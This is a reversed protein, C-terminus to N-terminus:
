HDAGPWNKEGAPIRVPLINSKPPLVCSWYPAFACNPNHARNFDLIVKGDKPPDAYLFRGAGYTERPATRDRFSFFLKGPEAEIATLEFTQGDLTFPAVGPISFGSRIGDARNVILTRPPSSPIWKATIRFGSTEPFWARPAIAQRTPAQEDFVRVFFASTRSSWVFGLVLPSLSVSFRADKGAATAITKESAPKGDIQLTIGPHARFTAHTGTWEITGLTPPVGPVPLVLASAADRGISSRGPSITLRAVISLPGDKATLEQDKEARFQALDGAMAAAACLFLLLRM